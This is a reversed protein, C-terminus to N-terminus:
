NAKILKRTEVFPGVQFKLIYLGPKTGATEWIASHEGASLRENILTTVKSGQLTYIDISVFNNQSLSFKTTTLSQIPNPYSSILHVATSFDSADGIATVVGTRTISFYGSFDSYDQEVNDQVIQIVAGDTEMDPVLWEYELVGLELSAIKNYSVGKNSSFNLDWGLQEHNQEIEWTITVLYGPRFFKGDLVSTLKVHGNSINVTVISLLIILICNRLNSM